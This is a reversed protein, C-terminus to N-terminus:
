SILHDTEEMEAGEYVADGFGLIPWFIFGLLALGIGFGTGKGFNKAIEINLLILAVLNVLPIFLLVIWWTPKKAILTMIYFNYFPVIAAWGPHGAKEFTKWISAVIFVIFALYLILFLFAMM